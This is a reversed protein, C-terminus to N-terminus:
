SRMSPAIRSCGGFDLLVGEPSQRPDAIGCSRESRPLEQYSYGHLCVLVLEVIVVHNSELVQKVIAITENNSVPSDNAQYMKGGSIVEIFVLGYGFICFLRVVGYGTGCVKGEVSQFLIVM